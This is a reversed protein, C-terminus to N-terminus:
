GKSFNLGGLKKLEQLSITRNEIIEPHKLLAYRFCNFLYNEFDTFIETFYHIREFELVNEYNLYKFVEKILEGIIPKESDNVDKYVLKLYMKIMNSEGQEKLYKTYTDLSDKLQIKKLDYLNRLSFMKQGLEVLYKSFVM